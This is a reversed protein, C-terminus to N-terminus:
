LYLSFNCDDVLEAQMRSGSHLEHLQSVAKGTAQFYGFIRQDHVGLTDHGNHPQSRSFARCKFNGGIAVIGLISDLGQTIEYVAAKAFSEERPFCVIIRFFPMPTDGPTAIALTTTISL